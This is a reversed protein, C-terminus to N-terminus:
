GKSDADEAELLPPEAGIHELAFNYARSFNDVKALM